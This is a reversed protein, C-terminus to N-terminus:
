QNAVSDRYWEALALKWDKPTFFRNPVVRMVHDYRLSQCFMKKLKPSLKEYRAMQELEEPYEGVRNREGDEPDMIFYPRYAYSHGWFRGPNMEMDYRDDDQLAGDYPMRGILLYFLVAAVSILFSDNGFQYRDHEESFGYPDVLGRSKAIRSVPRVNYYPERDEATETETLRSATIISFAIYGENRAADFYFDGLDFNATIFGASWLADFRDLLWSLTQLVAPEDLGRRADALHIVPQYQPYADPAFLLYCEGATNEM